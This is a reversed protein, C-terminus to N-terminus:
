IEELNKILIDPSAGLLVSWILIVSLVSVSEASLDAVKGSFTSSSFGRFNSFIVKNIQLFTYVGTFFFGFFTFVVYIPNVYTLAVMVFFEGPFASFMPIGMNAISFIFWFISFVPLVESLGSIRLTDRYGLNNYLYGVMYFMATAILGHSVMTHLFGVMGVEYGSFLGMLSYNMHSISTYAIFRKIDVQKIALLTAYTYGFLSLCIIENSFLFSEVPFLNFTFRYLGYGGIKLLLAALLISGTTPAEVHAIILWQHFPVLPVKFSFGLFLSLFLLKRTGSNTSEVLMWRLVDFDATGLIEIFYIVPIWLFISGILTFIVLYKVATVSNVRSGQTLMHFVLPLMIMEFFIFFLFISKVMFCVASFLLISLLVTSYGLNVKSNYFKTTFNLRDSSIGFFLVFGVFATLWVLWITVGDFFIPMLNRSIEFFMFNNLNITFVLSFLIIPLLLVFIWAININKKFNNRSSSNNLLHAAFGLGLVLNVMPKILLTHMSFNFIVIITFIGILNLVLQNKFITLFKPHKYISMDLIKKM